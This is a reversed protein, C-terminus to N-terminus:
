EVTIIQAPCAHAASRVADEQESPPPDDLLVVFGDDDQDFVDPAAFVCNGAGICKDRDITIKM